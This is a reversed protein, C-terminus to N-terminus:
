VFAAVSGLSPAGMEEIERERERERFTTKKKQKTLSYEIINHM